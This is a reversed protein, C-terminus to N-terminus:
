NKSNRNIEREVAQKLRQVARHKVSHVNNPSVNLVEAM